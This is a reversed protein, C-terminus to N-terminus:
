TSKTLIKQSTQTLWIWAFKCYHHWYDLFCFLFIFSYCFASSFVFDEPMLHSRSSFCYLEWRVCCSTKLKSTEQGVASMYSSITSLYLLTVSILLFSIGKLYFSAPILQKQWLLTEACSSGSFLINKSIKSRLSM